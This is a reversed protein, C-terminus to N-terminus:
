SVTQVTTKTSPAFSVDGNYNGTVLHAGKPLPNFTASATGDVLAVTQPTRGTIALTLTGSPTGTGPAVPAVTATVTVRIWSVRVPSRIGTM